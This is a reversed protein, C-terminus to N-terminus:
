AARSLNTGQLAQAIQQLTHRAHGNDAQEVGMSEVLEVEFLCTAVGLRDGAHLPAKGVPKGNVYTGNLSGLDEVMWQGSTADFYLRCHVRSVNPHALHLDCSPHRGVTIERAPTFFYAGEGLFAKLRLIKAHACDFGGCAPGAENSIGTM